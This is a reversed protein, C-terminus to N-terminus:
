QVRRRDLRRHEKAALYGFEPRRSKDAWLIVVRDGVAPQKNPDFVTVHDEPEGRRALGFVNARFPIIHDRPIVMLDHPTSAAKRAPGQQKRAPRPKSVANRTM